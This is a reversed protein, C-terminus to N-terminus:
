NEPKVYNSKTIFLIGTTEKNECGCAARCEISIREARNSERNHASIDIHSSINQKVTAM